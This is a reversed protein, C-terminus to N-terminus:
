EEEDEPLEELFRKQADEVAEEPRAITMIMLGGLVGYAVMTYLGINDSLRGFGNAELWNKFILRVFVILSVISLMYLCKGWTSNNSFKLSVNHKICAAFSLVLGLTALAINPVDSLTLHLENM